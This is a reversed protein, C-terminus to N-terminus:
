APSRRIGYASKMTKDMGGSGFMDKVKKEIFIEIQKQGKENTTEKTSVENDQANNNNINIVTGSDQSASAPASSKMVGVMMPTIAPLGDRISIQNTEMTPTLSKGFISGLGGGSGSGSGTGKLLMDFFQTLMRNMMLKAITKLLGEAFKEFSMEAKGLDDIFSGVFSSTYGAMADTLQQFQDKSKDVGSVLDDTALKQKKVIEIYQDMTIFGGELLEQYRGIERNLKQYPDLLEQIAQGEKRMAEEKKKLDGIMAESYKKSAEIKAMNAYDAELGNAQLKEIEALAKQYAYMPDLATKYAEIQKQIAEAEREAPTKGGGGSKSKSAGGAKSVDGASAIKRRTATFTKEYDELIKKRAEYAKNMDTVKGVGDVFTEKMGSFNFKMLQSSLEIATGLTSIMIRLGTIFSDVQNTLWILGKGIANGVERWADGASASQAFMEAIAQLAPALGAVMQNTIGESAKNMENMADNFATIRNVTEGSMVLGLEEARKTLAEISESGGNLMPILDAGAKGFIEMAKATKMAGDPMKSFAEAIKAFAQETTDSATVGFERLSAGVTSTSDGVEVLNKNFKGMASTLSEFGVGSQEAVFKLGSLSEVTVGIKESAKGLNDIEDTARKFSTAISNFVALGAQLAVFAGGVKKITDSLGGMTGNLKKFQTDTSATSKAIQDLKNLAQTSDVTLKYIRETTATTM